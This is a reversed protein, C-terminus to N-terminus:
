PTMSIAKGTLLTLKLWVTNVVAVIQSVKASLFMSETTASYSKPAVIIVETQVPYFETWANNAGMQALNAKMQVISLKTQAPCSKTQLYTLKTRAFNFKTSHLNVETAALNFKAQLYAQTSHLLYGIWLARLKFAVTLASCYTLGTQAPSCNRSAARGCARRM